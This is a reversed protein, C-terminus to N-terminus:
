HELPLGFAYITGDAASVYVQGDQGSPGMGQVSTTITNGSSWLEKGTKADLAYLVAPKSRELRTPAPMKVDTTRFAGSSLVFVVDNLVIPTMPSILDRSTWAPELALAAGQGTLKFAVVSGSSIVGNSIPFKTERAVAGASAVLLWRIGDAGQWTTVAGPTFDSGASSYISSKAIATRHDPGGPTSGDLVYLRGDRNAAAVLDRGEHNFAVPATTFPTQAAFWDKVELAKPDLAVVANAYRGSGSGTAVYLVNNLGLTPGVNGAIPAGESKWTSPSPSSGERSVDLASLSSPAGGCEDTTTAAYLTGDVLVSGTVKAGAPVLQVPTRLETGVHPNLAHVTGSSSVVWIANAIPLNNPNIGQQPGRGAPTPTPPPTPAPGGRAAWVAGPVASQNLPTNRTIAMLPVGCTSTAASAVSTNLKQTWYVKALDYDYAWVTDSSGGVFMLAKFGKHSILNGLILPQTLMTSRKAETEPRITWLLRFGGAEPGTLTAASIRTETRLWATRQADASLTNWNQGGRGQAHAVGVGLGLAMLALSISFRPVGRM